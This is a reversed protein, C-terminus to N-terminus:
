EGDEAKYFCAFRRRFMEKDPPMKELYAYFRAPHNDLISIGKNCHDCLWGRARGTFHDHDLCLAKFGRRRNCIECTQHKGCKGYKRKLLSVEKQFDAKCGPCYISNPASPFSKCFFCARGYCPPAAHRENLRGRVKALEDECAGCYGDELKMESSKYRIFMGAVTHSPFYDEPKLIYPPM